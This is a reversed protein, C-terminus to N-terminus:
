SKTISKGILSGIFFSVVAGGGGVIAGLGASQMFVYWPLLTVMGGLWYGWNSGSENKSAQDKDLDVGQEFKKEEKHVTAEGKELEPMEKSEQIVPPVVEKVESEAPIRIPSKPVPPSSEDVQNEAIRISKRLHSIKQEESSDVFVLIFYYVTYIILTLFFTSLSLALWHYSFQNEAILEFLPILILSILFSVSILSFFKVLPKILRVLINQPPPPPKSKDIPKSLKIWQNPNSIVANLVQLKKYDEKLAFEKIESLTKTNENVKKDVSVWWVDPLSDSVLGQLKEFKAM